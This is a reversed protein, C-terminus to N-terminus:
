PAASGVGESRGEPSGAARLGAPTGDTLTGDSLTHVRDAVGAAEPDHTVLLIGAARERAIAALLELVEGGRRRDLAGTPEDALILRPENVLARALAVRQAEGSSLLEAPQRLRAGVGVRDLWPIARQRAESLPVGDALLKITANDLASVGHKLHFRQQVLGIARRQVLAREHLGLAALPRGDVAVTGRDPVLFGGALLLLTTKGSGSPGYLAVVEGPEITLSVGDVARVVEEGARHHKVVGRMELAPAM